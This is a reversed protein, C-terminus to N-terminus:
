SVHRLAVPGPLLACALPDRPDARLLCPAPAAPPQDARGRGHHDDGRGDADREGEASATGARSPVLGAALQVQRRDARQARELRRRGRAAEAGLLHRHRGGGRQGARSGRDGALLHVPDAALGHLLGQEMDVGVQSDEHVARGALHRGGDADGARLGLRGRRAREDLLPGAEVPQVRVSGVADDV